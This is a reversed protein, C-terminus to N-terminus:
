NELVIPAIAFAPGEYREERKRARVVFPMPKRKDAFL